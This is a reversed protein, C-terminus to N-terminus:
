IDSRSYVEVSLDSFNGAIYDYYGLCAVMAANDMCLKIPPIYLKIGESDAKQAFMSRLRSNAAVGGSVLIKEFGSQRCAKFTKHVLVDVIADQFSAVLDAINNEDLIKPEKKTKYILATKLGSFSFNLDGSEIMPRPMEFRSPNGKSALRDIVPGGPYGLGLFRAIKDFAEGAADDVTHGVEKIEWNQGVSYLSTHGGSVILGTFCPGMEPVELFNSFLHAKLHNVAMFPIKKSYSIAKAAGVGVLLSGILGPRNSVSVASIQSMKIKAQLLAENIIIDIAEVHRRSALEPVVGGYKGHIEHQSAIVNSLIVKGDEVVSACTDDCSTEIGLILIKEQNKLNNKKLLPLNGQM